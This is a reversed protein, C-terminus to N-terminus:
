SDAEGDYVKRGETNGEQRAKGNDSLEKFNMEEGEDAMEAEEVDTKQVDNQEGRGEGEEKRWASRQRWRGVKGNWSRLTMSVLIVTCHDFFGLLGLAVWDVLWIGLNPFM